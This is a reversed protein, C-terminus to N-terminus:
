AASQITGRYDAYQTILTILPHGMEGTRHSFHPKGRAGGRGRAEKGGEM